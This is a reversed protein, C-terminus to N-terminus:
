ATYIVFVTKIKKGVCDIKQSLKIQSYFITYFIMCKNTWM